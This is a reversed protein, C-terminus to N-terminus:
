EDTVPTDHTSRNARPPRVGTREYFKRGKWTVGSGSAIRYASNFLIAVFLAHGLPVTFAYALPTQFTLNIFAFVAVQILWVLLSPILLQLWVHSAGALLAIACGFAVVFPAVMFLLVGFGGLAAHFLNFRAGAFLNKSFGEWIERFTPYMRTSILTPAYEIRLRAGAQKLLEALRLDEAVEARLARYEGTRRLWERRVLFFGVAVM